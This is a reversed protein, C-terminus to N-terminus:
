YYWFKNPKIGQQIWVDPDAETSKYGMVTLKEAFAARWAADSTKLGYLTRIMMCGKGARTWIKERCSANLYYNGVDAAFVKLDNFV